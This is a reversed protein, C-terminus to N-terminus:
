CELQLKSIRRLLRPRNRYKIMLKRRLKNCKSFKELATKFSSGGQQDSKRQINRIDDHNRVTMSQVSAAFCSILLIIIITFQMKTLKKTKSATNSIAAKYIGLTIATASRLLYAHSINLRFIHNGRSNICAFYEFNQRSLELFSLKLKTKSCRRLDLM